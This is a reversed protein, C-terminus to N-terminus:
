SVKNIQKMADENRIALDLERVLDDHQQQLKAVAFIESQRRTYAEDRDENSYENDLIVETLMGIIKSRGNLEMSINMLELNFQRNHRAPSQQQRAKVEALLAQVKPDSELKNLADIMSVTKVKAM